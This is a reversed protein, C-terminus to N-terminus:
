GAKILLVLGSITWDQLIISCFYVENYPVTQRVVYGM